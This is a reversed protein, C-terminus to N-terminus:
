KKKAGRSKKEKKKKPFKKQEIASNCPPPLACNFYVLRISIKSVRM